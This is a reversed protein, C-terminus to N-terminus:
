ILVKVVEDYLYMKLLGRFTDTDARDGGWPSLGFLAGWFVVALIDVREWM